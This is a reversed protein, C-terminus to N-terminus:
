KIEFPPETPADFRPVPCKPSSWFEVLGERQHGITPAGHNSIRVDNMSREYGVGTM